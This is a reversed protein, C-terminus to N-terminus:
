QIPSTSNVIFLFLFMEFLKYLHMWYISYLIVQFMWIYVLVFVCKGLGFRCGQEFIGM